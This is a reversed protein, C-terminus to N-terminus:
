KTCPPGEIALDPVLTSWVQTGRTPHSSLLRVRVSRGETCSAFHLLHPSPAPSLKFEARGDTFLEERYVGTAAGLVKARPVDGIFSVRYAFDFGPLGPCHEISSEVLATFSRGPREELGVVHVPDDWKNLDKGNIALCAADGEVRVLGIHRHFDWRQDAVQLGIALLLLLTKM